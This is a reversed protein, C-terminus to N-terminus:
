DVLKTLRAPIATRPPAGSRRSHERRHVFRVLNSAKSCENPRQGTSKNKATILISPNRAAPPPVQDLEYMYVFM